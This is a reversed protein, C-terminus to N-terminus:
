EKTSIFNGPAHNKRGGFTAVDFTTGILLSLENRKFVMNDATYKLGQYSLGFRWVSRNFPVDLSFIGNIGRKNFLSSLHVADSLNWLEFMEYYSAGERPVFMCGLIPSQVALQLQLVRKRLPIDYVAVGSLNLNTALDINVPNNVNRAIYKFGFDVDWLGGAMLQLGTIPRFHYHLGWGYNMGLYTMSSTIAPNLALGGVINLKSQMSIKTNQPSLFHRNENDYRIGIGSYSLPSIYPDTLNITSLGFTNTKSTLLYKQEDNTQAYLLSNILFFISLFINKKM